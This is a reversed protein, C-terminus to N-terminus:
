RLRRRIAAGSKRTARRVRRAAGAAVPLVRRPDAPATAVPKSSGAGGQGAPARTKTALARVQMGGLSDVVLRARAPAFPAPTFRTALRKSGPLGSVWATLTVAGSSDSELWAIVPHYKVRLLGELRTGAPLDLGPVPGTLLSGRASETVQVDRAPLRHVLQHRLGGVDIGLRGAESFSVAPRVTHTAGAARRPTARLLVPEAKTESLGARLSPWWIGEDLPHGGALREPDLRAELQVMQPDAAPTRAVDADALPWEIGSAPCFVSLGCAAEAALAGTVKISLLLVGSDWRATSVRAVVPSHAQERPVSDDVEAGDLFMPAATFAVVRSAALTAAVDLEELSGTPVDVQAHLATRRHLRGAGGLRLPDHAGVETLAAGGQAAVQAPRTGRQGTLGICVDAEGDDAVQCLRALADPLLHREGALLLVYEGRASEILMRLATQGSAGDLALSRVNPRHAVLDGLRRSADRDGGDDGVLIEFDTTPLTQRDLSVLAARDVEPFSAIVVSVRPAMGSM